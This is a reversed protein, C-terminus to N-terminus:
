KEIGKVEVPREPKRKGTQVSKVIARGRADEIHEFLDSPLAYYVKALESKSSALNEMAIQMDHNEELLADVAKVITRARESLVDFARESIRVVRGKKPNQKKTESM